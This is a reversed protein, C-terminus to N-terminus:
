EEIHREDDQEDKGEIGLAEGGGPFSEGQFPVVLQEVGGVEPLREHVREDDGDARGGDAEGHADEENKVCRLASPDAFDM